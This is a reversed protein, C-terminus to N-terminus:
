LAKQKTFYSIKRTTYAKQASIKLEKYGFINEYLGRINEYGWLKQGASPSILFM